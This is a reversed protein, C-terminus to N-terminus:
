VLKKARLIELARIIKSDVTSLFGLFHVEQGIQLWDARNEGSCQFYLLALRSWYKPPDYKELDQIHRSITCVLLTRIYLPSHIGLLMHLLSSVATLSLCTVHKPVSAWFNTLGFENKWALQGLFQNKIRFISVFMRWCRSLNWLFSTPMSKDRSLEEDYM